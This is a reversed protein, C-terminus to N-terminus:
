KIVISTDFIDKSLNRITSTEFIVYNEQLLYRIGNCNMFKGNVFLRDNHIPQNKILIIPKDTLTEKLETLVDMRNDICLILMKRDANKYSSVLDYNTKSLTNM